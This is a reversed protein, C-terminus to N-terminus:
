KTFDEDFRVTAASHFIVSVKEVVIATDHDSLGLGPLTIDGSLAVIKSLLSSKKDQWEEFIPAQLLDQNVREQPERGKKPRILVFVKDIEPCSTLLKHVLVKGMFGTAGTIFISKGAFFQCVQGRHSTGNAM